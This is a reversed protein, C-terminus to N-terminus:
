RKLSRMRKNFVRGVVPWFASSPMDFGMLCYPTWRSRVQLDHYARAATRDREFLAHLYGFLRRRWVLAEDKKGSSEAGECVGRLASCVDDAVVDEHREVLLQTSADSDVNFLLPADRVADALLSHKRIFAFVSTDSLRLYISLAADYHGQL